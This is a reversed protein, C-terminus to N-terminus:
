KGQESKNSTLYASLATYSSGDRYITSMVGHGGPRKYKRLSLIVAYGVTGIQVILFTILLLRFVPSNYRINMQVILDELKGFIFLVLITVVIAIDAVIFTVLWPKHINRRIKTTSEDLWFAKLKDILNM